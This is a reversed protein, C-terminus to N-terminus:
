DQRRLAKLRGADVKKGSFGEALNELEIYARKQQRRQDGDNRRAVIYPLCREYTRKVITGGVARIIKRDYIGYTVGTALRELGNLVDVVAHLLNLQEDDSLATGEQDYIKRDKLALAQGQEHTMTNMGLYRTILRRQQTTGDNWTTWAALTSQKRATARTMVFSITAVILSFIAVLGTILIVNLRASELVQPWDLGQLWVFMLIVVCISAILWPVFKAALLELHRSQIARIKSASLCDITLFGYQRLDDLLLPKWLVKGRCM